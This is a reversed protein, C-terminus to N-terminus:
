QVASTSAESRGASLWRGRRFAWITWAARALHDFVLTSWVWIVDLALVRAFLFALPVRFAWNGVISALMPSVTDGAGRLSGGLTFHIGLLPQALALVLM